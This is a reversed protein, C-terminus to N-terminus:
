QEKKGKKNQTKMHRVITKTCAKYEEFTSKIDNLEKEKKESEINNLKIELQLRQSQENLYDCKLKAKELAVFLTRKETEAADLQRGVDVLKNNAEWWLRYLQSEGVVSSAVQCITQGQVRISWIKRDKDAATTPRGDACDEALPVPAPSPSKHLPETASEKAAQAILEQLETADISSDESSLEEYLVRTTM